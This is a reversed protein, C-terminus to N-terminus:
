AAACLGREIFRASINQMREPGLDFLLKDALRFNVDPFSPLCFPLEGTSSPTQRGRMCDDTSLHRNLRGCEQEQAGQRPYTKRLGIREALLGIERKGFLGLYNDTDPYSLISGIETRKGAGFGVGVVEAARKVRQIVDRKGYGSFAGRIALNQAIELLRAVLHAVAACQHKEKRSRDSATVTFFVANPPFQPVPAWAHPRLPPLHSVM